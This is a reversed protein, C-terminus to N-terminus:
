RYALDGHLGLFGLFGLGAIEAWSLWIQGSFILFFVWGQTQDVHVTSGDRVM